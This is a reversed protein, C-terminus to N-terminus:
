SPQPLLKAESFAGGGARCSAEVAGLDAERRLISVFRTPTLSLPPDVPQLRLNQLSNPPLKDFSSNILTPPGRGREPTPTDHRSGM